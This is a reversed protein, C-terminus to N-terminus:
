PTKGIENERPIVVHEAVTRFCPAKPKVFEDIRLPHKDVDEIIEAAALQNWSHGMRCSSKIEIPNRRHHGDKNAHCPSIFVSVDILRTRTANFHMAITAATRAM